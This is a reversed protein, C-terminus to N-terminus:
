ATPEADLDDLARKASRLEFLAADLEATAMRTDGDVIPLHDIVHILVGHAREVRARAAERAVPNIM